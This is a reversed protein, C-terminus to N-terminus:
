APARVCTANSTTPTCNSWALFDGQLDIAGDPVDEGEFIAAIRGGECAIGGPTVRGELILRANALIAQTMPPSEPVALPHLALNVPREPAQMALYGGSGAM